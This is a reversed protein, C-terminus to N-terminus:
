YYIYEDDRNLDLTSCHIGGGFIEGHNLEVEVVNFGNSSLIDKVGLARKNVVVTNEDLSLVNIDMGRSSALMLDVDTMDTVDINETLDKPYLLEWSKFKKPLYDIINPYKPDVLFKGECLCCIIGDIHNDALGYMPHFTSEPFLSEVWKYGLYHNYSSISVLVDRGIRLFQAGDIAMDYKFHDFNEYDREMSWDDLDMRDETLKTHPSRIWQGGQYMKNFVNYLSINEFYRNRVFVPTEIIKDKYVLSVDRVNSASSLTSGFTPTEFKIIKKIPDPRHVNIDYSKLTESLDDLEKNRQEILDLRVKYSTIPEEYIKQNLAEKYFVRFTIDTIRISLELERGVVVDRLKGFSTNSNIM